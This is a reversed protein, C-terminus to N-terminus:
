IEIEIEIEIDSQIFDLMYKRQQQGTSKKTDYGHRRGKLLFPFSKRVSM